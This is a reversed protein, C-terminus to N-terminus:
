LFIGTGASDKYVIEVGALLAPDFLRMNIGMSTRSAKRPQWHTLCGCTGCRHFDVNRGGWAYTQEPANSTIGVDAIAFYGWLVGHRRCLSCNCRTITAPPAPLTLQVAGCHCAGHIPASDLVPESM